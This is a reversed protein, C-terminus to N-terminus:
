IAGLWLQGDEAICQKLLVNDDYDVPVAYPCSECDPWSPLIVVRRIDDGYVCEKKKCIYRM